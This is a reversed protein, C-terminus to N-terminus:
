ERITTTSTRLRLLQRNNINSRHRTPPTRIVKHRKNNFQQPTSRHRQPNVLITLKTTCTMSARQRTILGINCLYRNAMTSSSTRNSSCRTNRRNHRRNLSYREQRLTSLLNNHLSNNTIRYLTRKQHQLIHLSAQRQSQRINRRNSCLLTRILLLLNHHLRFSRSKVNTVLGTHQRHHSIPM